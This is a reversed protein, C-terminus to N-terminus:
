TTGRRRPSRAGRSRSRPTLMRSVREDSVHVFRRESGRHLHHGPLSSYEGGIKTYIRGYLTQGTPLAPVIYSTQTSPLAGSNVLDYAGVSTGITLYYGQASAATSWTFPLTTDVNSQGSTPYTFSAQTAGTVMLTLGTQHTASTATGTVTIPYTGAPTAATTTITLTSNSGATVSAPSFAASAGTPLGAATLGM